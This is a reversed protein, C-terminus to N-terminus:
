LLSLRHGKILASACCLVEKINVASVRKWTNCLIKKLYKNVFLLFICKKAPYLSIKNIGQIQLKRMKFVELAVFWHFCPTEPGAYWPQPVSCGSQVPAKLIKLAPNCVPSTNGIHMSQYESTKSCCNSTCSPGGGLGM